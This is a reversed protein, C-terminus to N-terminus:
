DAVEADPHVAFYCDDLIDESTESINWRGDIVRELVEQRLRDFRQTENKKDKDGNRKEIIEDVSRALRQSVKTVPRHDRRTDTVVMDGALLRDRCHELTAPGDAAEETFAGLPLAMM